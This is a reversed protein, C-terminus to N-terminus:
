AEGGEQDELRLVLARASLWADAIKQPDGNEIEAGITKLHQLLEPAAVILRANDEVSYGHRFPNINPNLAAIQLGRGAGTTAQRITYTHEANSRDIECIWPAPTHKTTMTKNEKPKPNPCTLTM